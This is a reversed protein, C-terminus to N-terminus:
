PNKEMALQEIRALGDRLAAQRATLDELRARVRGEEMRDRREHLRATRRNLASQLTRVVRLEEGVNVAPPDTEERQRDEPQDPPSEAVADTQRLVEILAELTQEIEEQVDRASALEGEDLLHACADLDDRVSQLAEPWAVTRGFDDLLEAAEAVRRGLARQRVALDALRLMLARGPTEGDGEQAARETASSIDQQEELFEQLVVAMGRRAEARRQAEAKRLAEQLTERAQQLHRGAEEQEAAAQEPRAERLAQGASDMFPLASALDEGGPSPGLLMQLTETDAGIDQQRGAARDLEDEGTPDLGATLAALEAQRQLLADLQAAARHLRELSKGEDGRSLIDALRQLDALMRGEAERAEAYRGEALLSAIDEMRNVLLSNRSLTLADRLRAVRDADEVTGVLELLRREVAEMRERLRQQEASLEGAEGAPGASLCLVLALFLLKATMARMM